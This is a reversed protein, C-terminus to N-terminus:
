NLISLNLLMVGFTTVYLYMFSCFSFIKDTKKGKHNAQDQKSAFQSVYVIIIVIVIIIIISLLM